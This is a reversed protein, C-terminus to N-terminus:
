PTNKDKALLGWGAVALGVAAFGLSWRLGIRAKRTRELVDAAELTLTLPIGRRVITWYQWADVPGISDIQQPSAAFEQHRPMAVFYFYGGAALSLAALLLGIFLLGQRRGWTPPSAVDAIPELQKMERMTPVDLRAGCVCDITEGAQRPGVPTSRGCSCPLLYASTM